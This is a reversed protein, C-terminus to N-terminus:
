ELGFIMAFRGLGTKIQQSYSRLDPREMLNKGLYEMCQSPNSRPAVVTIPKRETEAKKFNDRDYLIGGLYEPKISFMAEMNNIREDATQCIRNFLFLGQKLSTIQNMIVWPKYVKRPEYFEVKKLLSEEIDKFRQFSAKICAYGAIIDQPTTVILIEDSALAFDMVATGIGASLDFITIDYNESIKRFSRIFKTRQVYNINALKFEGSSGGVLDFGYATKQIMDELPVDGLLFDYLTYEPFLALKNSIDANGLDADILLVKKGGQAAVTALNTSVHTKGVGGKNSIVSIIRHEREVEEETEAPPSENKKAPESSPPSYYTDIAKRIATKDGLAPYVKKGIHFTLTEVVEKQDPDGIAVLVGGNLFRIPLSNYNRAFVEKLLDVCKKDPVEKEIDIYPMGCKRALARTEAINNM